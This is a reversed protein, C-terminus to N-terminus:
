HATVIQQKELHQHMSARLWGSRCASCAQTKAQKRHEHQQEHRHEMGLGHALVIGVPQGPQMTFEATIRQGQICVSLPSAIFLDAMFHRGTITEGAFHQLGGHERGIHGTGINGLYRDMKGRDEDELWRKRREM